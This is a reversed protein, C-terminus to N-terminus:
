APFETKALIEGVIGDATMRAVQAEPNLRTRHSLTFPALYKM